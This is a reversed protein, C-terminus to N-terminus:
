RLTRSGFYYGITLELLQNLYLLIIDDISFLQFSSIINISCVGLVIALILGAQLHGIIEKAKNRGPKPPFIRRIIEKVIMGLAYQLHTM